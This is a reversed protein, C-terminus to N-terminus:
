FRTPNTYFGVTRGSVTLSGNRIGVVSNDSVRLLAAGSDGIVSSGNPFVLVKNNLGLVSANPDDIRTEVVGSFGRISRVLDNQRAHNAHYRITNGAPWNWGAPM